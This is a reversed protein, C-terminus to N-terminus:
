HRVEEDFVPSELDHILHECMHCHCCVIATKVPTAASSATPPTAKTLAPSPAPALAKIRRLEEGADYAAFGEPDYKVEINVSQSMKLTDLCYTKTMLRMDEGNM